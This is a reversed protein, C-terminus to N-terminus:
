GFNNTSYEKLFELRDKWLEKMKEATKSDPIQMQQIVVQSKNDSKKYLEVRVTTGDTWTIVMSKNETAKRIKIKESLWKLRVKEDDFYKYLESM